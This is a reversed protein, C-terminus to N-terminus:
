SFIHPGTMKEQFCVIRLLAFFFSSLLFLPFFHPQNILARKSRQEPLFRKALGLCLFCKKKMTSQTSTQTNGESDSMLHFM